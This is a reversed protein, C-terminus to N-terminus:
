CGCCRAGAANNQSTCSTRRLDPVYPNLVTELWGTRLDEAIMERMSMGIGLGDRAAQRVAPMNDFILRAPPDVTVTRNGDIFQWDSLRNSTLYRYRVTKHGLLDRPHAPRGHTELYTPAAVYCAPLPGSLRVAVMGPALRDGLRFGAHFGNKVVDVLAEDISLELRVDPCQAQFAGLVPALFLEYASPPMTLRLTGQRSGGIARTDEVAETLERYAPEARSLLARGAETLEISRTTRVFLDVGVRRELAKLQQSVAPAGVGLSRAAARLSGDRVIALFVDLGALPSM